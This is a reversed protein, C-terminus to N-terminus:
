GHHSGGRDAPRGPFLDLLPLLDPGELVHDAAERVRPDKPQYAIAVAAKELAALDNWHDGVFAISGTPCDFDRALLDLARAKGEMDFPTAQWGSISGDAAFRIHNTFARDVELGGFVVELTLDLTGSVLAVLYGRRRLTRLTEAAGPVPTLERRIVAALAQRTVGARQWDGVDLAVWEAYELRGEVFAKFREGDGGGQGPGLFEENLVQWVTKDEPHRVLTGDVDFCVM